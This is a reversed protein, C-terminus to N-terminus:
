LPWRPRSLSIWRPVEHAPMPHSRFYGQAFDCGLTILRRYVEATEVGEAVVRLGLNRGLDITSRVIVADSKELVVVDLGTRAAVEAIGSGMLGCGVVGVRPEHVTM